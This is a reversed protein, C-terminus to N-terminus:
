ESHAVPKELYWARGFPAHPAPGVDRRAFYHCAMSKRTRGPKAIASGGHVLLAHWLLVDGRKALYQM